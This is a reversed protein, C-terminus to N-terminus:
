SPSGKLGGILGLPARVLYPIRKDGHPRRMGFASARPGPLQKGADDDHLRARWFWDASFTSVLVRSPKAGRKGQCTEEETQRRGDIV